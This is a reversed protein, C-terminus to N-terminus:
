RLWGALVAPDFGHGLAHEVYRVEAGAATLRDRPARGHGVPVVDDNTGHVIAVRAPPHALDLELGPVALLFGAIAVLGAPRPREARLALLYALAAGQSYGVVVTREPPHQPGLRALAADVAAVAERLTAAFAALEPTSGTAPAAPEPFPVAEPAQFWEFGDGLPHPGRLSLADYRREPDLAEVSTILDPERGGRGHLAVIL